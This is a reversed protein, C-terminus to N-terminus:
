CLEYLILRKLITMQLDEIFTSFDQFL